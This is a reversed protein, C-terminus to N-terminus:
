KDQCKNCFYEKSAVDDNSWNVCKAHTWVDCTECGICKGYKQNDRTKMYIENCVSCRTQKSKKLSRIVKHLHLSRRGKNAPENRARKPQSPGAPEDESVPILPIEITPAVTPLDLQVGSTSPVPLSFDTTDSDIVVLPVSDTSAEPLTPDAVLTTASTSPQTVAYNCDGCGKRTPSPYHLTPVSTGGLCWRTEQNPPTIGSTRYRKWLEDDSTYTMVKGKFDTYQIFITGGCTTVLEKAKVLLTKRRKYKASARAAADAIFTNVPM